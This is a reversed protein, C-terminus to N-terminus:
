LCGINKRYVSIDVLRVRHGENKVEPFYVALWFSVKRSALFVPAPQSGGRAKSIKDCLKFNYQSDSLLLLISNGQKNKLHGFKFEFFTKLTAEIATTVQKFFQACKTLFLKQKM